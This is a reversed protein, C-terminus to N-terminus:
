SNIKLVAGYRNWWVLFSICVKIGGGQGIYYIPVQLAWNKPNVARFWQYNVFQYLIIKVMIYKNLAGINWQNEEGFYLICCSWMQGKSDFWVSSIKMTEPGSCWCLCECNGMQSSPGEFMFGCVYIACYFVCVAVWMCGVAGALVWHNLPIFIGCYFSFCVFYM